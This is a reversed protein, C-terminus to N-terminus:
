KLLQVRNMLRVGGHDVELFYMGSSWQDADITVINNGTQLAVSNSLVVRGSLDYIKFSVVGSRELSIPLNMRGNFPNPYPTALAFAVPQSTNESIASHTVNFYDLVAALAEERSNTYGLGSVAELGFSFFVTKAESFPYERRVGAYSDRDGVAWRYVEIGTDVPSVVGPRRQNHAGPAGLLLLNLGRGVPDDEIGILEVYHVSDIVNRVGMYDELFLGANDISSACQSTIFLNGGNEIFEQLMQLSAVDLISDRSDGTFWIVSSFQPLRLWLPREPADIRWNQYVVGLEDLSSNLFRTRDFESYGDRVLLVQPNGIPIRKTEVRNYDGNDATIEFTFMAFSLPADESIEFLFPVSGVRQDGISMDGYNAESQILEVHQNDCTATITVDEAPPPYYNGARFLEVEIRVFEGPEWQFDEDGNAGDVDDDWISIDSVLLDPVIGPGIGHRGFAQYIVRDDPTGNTIDGDDDNIFLIDLFHSIFDNGLRYKAFHILSDTYEVGLVARTEWMAASIIRSDYHVENRIHDPYIYDNDLNRFSGGGNANNEGMFSDGTLSCPFYDSWAENLAGSEGIYPLVGWPFIFQTIGHTYEHYIVDVHLALNGLTPGDGFSMGDGHWFANDYNNGYQCTAVVAFDLDIYDPDISKWHDHIVNTHYFLTTEDILSNDRDWVLNTNDEPQDFRQNIRANDGDEYEVRVWPGRLESVYRVANDPNLNFEFEGNEDTLTERGPTAQVWEHPFSDLSDEDFPYRYKYSGEITGNFRDFQINNEGALLQGSTADLFLIPRLAVNEPFLSVQWAAQLIIGSETPMPLWVKNSEAKESSVGVLKEATQVATKSDIAFAGAKEAGFGRAKIAILEGFQNLNFIAYSGHVAVGGVLPQIALTTNNGKAVYKLVLPDTKSLNLDGSLQAYLSYVASTIQDKDSKASVLPIPKGFAFVIGDTETNRWVDQWLIKDGFDLASNNTDQEYQLTIGELPRPSSWPYEHDSPPAVVAFASGIQILFVFTFVIGLIHSNARSMIHTGQERWKAFSFRNGM